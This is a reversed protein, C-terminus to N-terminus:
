ESSKFNEKNSKIVLTLSYNYGIVFFAVIPISLFFPQTLLTLNLAIFGVIADKKMFGNILFLKEFGKYFFFLYFGGFFIGYRALAGIFGYGFSAREHVIDTESATLIGQGTVPNQIFVELAKAFAFFRGRQMTEGTQVAEMDSMYSGEIKGSMFETTNYVFFVLIFFTPILLVKVFLYIRSRLLYYGFYVFLSIYGVTSFTTLLIFALIFNEKNFAQKKILTNVIIGLILVISFAGPESTFGAHRPYPFNQYEGPLSFIIFSNPVKTGSYPAFFHFLQDIANNASPIFSYALYFITSIVSLIYIGRFLNKIFEDKQITFFLYPTLFLWIPKYIAAPSLGGYIFSQLIILTYVALLVLMMKDNIINKNESLHYLVLLTFLLVWAPRHLDGGFFMSFEILLVGIMLLFKFNTHKRKKQM